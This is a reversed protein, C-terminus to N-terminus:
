IWGEDDPENTTHRGYPREKLIPCGHYERSLLPKGTQEDFGIPRRYYVLEKGCTRCFKAEESQTFWKKRWSM